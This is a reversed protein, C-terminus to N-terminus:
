VGEIQIDFSQQILEMIYDIENINSLGVEVEGNGWRGLESVNSCIGKPDHLKSFEMNLSLRLRTKQPVIDVFNTTSKFAIYLKKYEEVVSSDINIIRKKLSHYLDLMDGTLHKYRDLTYITGQKAKPKYM